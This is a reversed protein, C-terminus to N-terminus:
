GGIVRDVTGRYKYNKGTKEFSSRGIFTIQSGTSDAASGHQVIEQFTCAVEVVRPTGNPFWAQYTIPADRLVVLIEDRDGGLRTNELTLYFRKPPKVAQNLSGDPYDGRLYSQLRALAARVDVTYRGSPLLKVSELDTATSLSSDTDVEATFNATFVIQRGSGGTYQLLPHSGGPIKKEAYEPSYTDSLSEPWYQFVFIEDDGAVPPTGATTAPWMYVSRPQGTSVLGRDSLRDITPM